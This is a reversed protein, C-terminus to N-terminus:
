LWARTRRKYARFDDGFVCEMTREEMPIFKLQIILAFLVPAVFATVSGCYVAIGLLILTMGLYMPHRSIRYPGDTVLTSPELHPKVTTGRKKFIRDTWLTIWGGLVFPVLGTWVLPEPILQRIPFVLHFGIGAIM